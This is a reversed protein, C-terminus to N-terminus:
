GADEEVKLCALKLAVDLLEVLLLLLGVEDNTYEDNEPIEDGYGEDGDYGEFDEESDVDKGLDEADGDEDGSDDM